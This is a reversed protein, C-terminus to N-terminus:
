LYHELSNVGTFLGKNMLSGLPTGGLSTPLIQLFDVFRKVLGEYFFEYQSTTLHSLKSLHQLLFQHRKSELLFSSPYVLILM